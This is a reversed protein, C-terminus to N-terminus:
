NSGSDRQKEQRIQSVRRGQKSGSSGVLKHKYSIEVNM